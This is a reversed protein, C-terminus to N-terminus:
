FDNKLLYEKSIIREKLIYKEIYKALYDNEINVISNIRLNNLISNSLTHPIISVSFNNKEVSAVTLSIGDICISGKEVIYNMLKNDCKFKFWKANVDMRTSILTATGDIHGTVIHGGFRSNLSMARELNVKSNHKINSLSTRTITEPMVDVKFSYNNFSTVTLCIGNVAVSDGVEMDKIIIKAEIELSYINNGKIVSKINGMEEVIGTFM